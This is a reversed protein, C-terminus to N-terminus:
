FCKLMHRVSYPVVSMGAGGEFNRYDIFSYQAMTSDGAMFMTACIFLLIVYILSVTRLTDKRPGLVSKLLPGLCMVTLTLVVGYGVGTLIVGILWARESILDYATPDPKWSPDPKFVAPMVPPRPDYHPFSVSSSTQQRASEQRSHNEDM